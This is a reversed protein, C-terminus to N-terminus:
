LWSSFGLLVASFKLLLLLWATPRSSAPVERVYFVASPRIYPNRFYRRFKTVCHCYTFYVYTLHDVSPAPTIIM